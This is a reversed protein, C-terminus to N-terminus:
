LVQTRSFKWLSFAIVIAAFGGLVTLIPLIEMFGSGRWLVAMFGEISWYVLSFKGLTQIYSPMLSTPFWAGGIASMTLILMMALAAAQAPTKALSAILMGFGTAAAASLFIVCLLNGANSVIDVGFLVSGAIFLVILQVTGLLTGFIYRSVLIHTRSFPAALIRMFVTNRREDILANAFGSLTFLLFMMAWGGVSRTANPNGIDAGVLQRSQFDIMRSFINAAANNAAGRKGSATDNSALASGSANFISDDNFRAHPFYRKVTQEISANFAGGSDPGLTRRAQRSMSELFVQPIQEMITKQLMGQVIQMEIENRPDYYFRLRFGISTDTYADAPIVLAAPASGRRVYDQISSTDFTIKKGRDDKMTRVLQFTKLTDLISEIRRAVPAQSQNLFALRIGASESHTGGFIAGFLSIMVIPIIFTLLVAVRDAMFVKTYTRLLILYKKM